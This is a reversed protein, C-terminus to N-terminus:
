DFWVPSAYGLARGSGSLDGPLPTDDPRTPDSIRVVLWPVPRPPAPFSFRTAGKTDADLTAHAVVAVSGGRPALLQMSVSSPAADQRLALDIEVDLTDRWRGTHASGMPTGEVKVALRMGKERTAFTRRAGLAERVGEADLQRVWLGSRGKGEPLGWDDGHEDSVGLLAPRWGQSLCEVLPSDLGNAVGELLYDDMKNFMELGVVRSVLSPEFQFGSFRSTGRGGPHNFSALGGAADKSKALWAWLAAMADEEGAPPNVFGETDWVNIHGLRPHSWEFGHMAVFSPPADEARALEQILRWGAEDIGRKGGLRMPPPVSAHDTIAAVDLGASRMSGFALRPDGSGDSLLTHNHLDAHVLFHDSFLPSTRETGWADEKGVGASWHMMAHPGAVIGDGAGRPLGGPQSPRLM